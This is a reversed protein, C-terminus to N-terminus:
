PTGKDQVTNRRQSSETEAILGELHEPSDCNLVQHPDDCGDPRACWTAAGVYHLVCWFEWGPHRRVLDALKQNWYNPEPM